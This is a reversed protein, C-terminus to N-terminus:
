NDCEAQAKHKLQVFDQHSLYLWESLQRILHEEYRDLFGDSFAVRWCDLLVQKREDVSCRENLVNVTDYLSVADDAHAHAQDLLARADTEDLDFRSALRAVIQEAESEDWVHDARGTEILLYATALRLSQSKSPETQPGELSKLLERLRALM